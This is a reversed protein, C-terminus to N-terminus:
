FVRTVDLNELSGSMKHAQITGFRTEPTLPLIYARRTPRFQYLRHKRTKPVTVVESQSISRNRPPEPLRGASLAPGKAGRAGSGCDGGDRDGGDRDGGDRDGGDRDGGDRDGSVWHM